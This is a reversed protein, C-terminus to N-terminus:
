FELGTEPSSSTSVAPLLNSPLQWAGSETKILGYAKGQEEMDALERELEAVKAKTFQVTMPDNKLTSIERAVQPYRDKIREHTGVATFDRVFKEYRYQNAERIDAQEAADDGAASGSSFFGNFAVAAGEAKDDDEVLLEGRTNEIGAFDRMMDRYEQRLTWKDAGTAGRSRDIIGHANLEELAARASGTPLRIDIAVAKATATTCSALVYLAHRRQQPISDMGIKFAFRKIEPGLEQEARVFMMMEVLNILQSSFRAPGEPSNARLLNGKFDRSVATRATTVFNSMQIFTLAQEETLRPITEQTLREELGAYVEAACVKLGERIAAITPRAKNAFIGMEERMKLSLNPLEYMISRRGMGASEGNGEDYISDTVCGVFCVKGTWSPSTGNGSEKTFRGDYIERMQALIQDRKEPRMTLITTFDKMILLSRAGMRHLLSNKKGAPGRASSLFTNETLTSVDFVKDLKCIINVFETKGMSPAGVVMMWIADGDLKSSVYIAMLADTLMLQEEQVFFSARYQDRLDKITKM